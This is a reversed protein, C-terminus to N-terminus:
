AKSAVWANVREELINLPVPGSALVVDHYEALSFKDGLKAKADERLDIIKIMGIKYATAQGPM